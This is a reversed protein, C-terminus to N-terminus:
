KPASAVMVMWGVGFKDALMGFGPSFFTKTMPMRVQGGASLAGFIKEASALDAASIALSFGEFALQGTCHGDSLMLVSEGIRIEGHMIKNETGPPMQGPPPPEPSDKYRMLMNVQAGVAQRYFDIAEECRGNFFLYPQTLM